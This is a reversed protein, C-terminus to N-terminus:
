PKNVFNAGAGAFIFRHSLNEVGAKIQISVGLGKSFSTVAGLDLTVTKWGNSWNGAFEKVKEEGNWIHIDSVFADVSGTYFRLRIYRAGQSLNGPTPIALQVWNSLGPKLDVDTGWGFYVNDPAVV